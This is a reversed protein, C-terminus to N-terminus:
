SNIALGSSATASRSQRATKSQELYSALVTRMFELENGFHAKIRDILFNDLFFLRSPDIRFDAKLMKGLQQQRMAHARVAVNLTFAQQRHNPSTLSEAIKRLRVSTEIADALRHVEIPVLPLLRKQISIAKAIGKALDDARMAYRAACIRALSGDEYAARVKAILRDSLEPRNPIAM